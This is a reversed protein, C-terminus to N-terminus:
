KLGTIFNDLFQLLEPIAFRLLLFVPILVIAWFIVMPIGVGRRSYRDEAQYRRDEPIYYREDTYDPKKADTDVGVLKVLGGFKGRRLARVLSRSRGIGLEEPTKASEESYAEAKLIARVAKGMHGKRYCMLVLGVVIGVYLGILIYNLDILLLPSKINDYYYEPYLADFFEKWFEIDFKGM